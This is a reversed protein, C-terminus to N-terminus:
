QNRFIKLLVKLNRKILNNELFEKKAKQLMTLFRGIESKKDSIKTKIEGMMM